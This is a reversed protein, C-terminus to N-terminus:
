NKAAGEKNVMVSITQSLSFRLQLAHAAENIEYFSRKQIKFIQKSVSVFVVHNQPFWNKHVLCGGEAL